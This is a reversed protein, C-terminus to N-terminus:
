TRSRATSPGAPGPRARSPSTVLVGATRQVIQLGGQNVSVYALTNSGTGGTVNDDGLGSVLTDDGAGGNVATTNAFSRGGVITDNQDGGNVAGSDGALLTDDGGAGNITDTSETGAPQPDVSPTGPPASGAITNPGGNGTLTDDGNGGTLGEIDAAISDNEGAEGNGTSPTSGAPLTASVPATRSIGADAIGVYAVSDTDAGGRSPTTRM